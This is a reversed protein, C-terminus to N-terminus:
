KDNFSTKRNYSAQIKNINEDHLHDRSTRLLRQNGEIGKIGQANEDKPDRSKISLALHPVNDDPQQQQDNISYM